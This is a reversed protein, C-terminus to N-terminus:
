KVVHASKLLTIQEGNVRERENGLKPKWGWALLFQFITTAVVAAAASFFHPQQLLSSFDVTELTLMSNLRHIVCLFVLMSM